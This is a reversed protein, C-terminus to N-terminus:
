KLTFYSIINDITVLLWSGPYKFTYTCTFQGYIRVHQGKYSKELRKELVIKM